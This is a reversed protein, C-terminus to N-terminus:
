RARYVFEEVTKKGDRVRELLVLLTGNEGARYGLRTPRAPDRNDWFHNPGEPPCPHFLSPADKEESAVLGPAFHRLLLVVGEPRAELALMEYVVVKDGRTWRFLGTMAGAAPPFWTEEILDGDKEGIWSGALFAYPALPDGAPAPAPGESFAPLTVLVFSSLARRLWRTMPPTM